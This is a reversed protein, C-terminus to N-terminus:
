GISIPSGLAPAIVECEGGLEREFVDARETHIPIVTAPKADSIFRLLDTGNAHGSVHSRLIGQGDNIGFHDLWNKLKIEDLVMDDSFPETAARVFVSGPPPLVDFLENMDFYGAHLIYRTPDAAIDYARLGERVHRLRPNLYGEDLAAFAAKMGQSRPGWDATIGALHKSSSYDGFSYTMSDTRKLYVRVSSNESLDSYGAPDAARLMEWLYAVKPSVALIRGTARAVNVITQFRTTDKWGFDIIALGRCGEIAARITNEVDQEDDGKTSVNGDRDLIRTGETIFVDPALGATRALLDTTLNSEGLSFRGHFRVDGSYFVTKGSPCEILYACAGPVSHDVPIAEVTFGGVSFPSHAEIVNIARPVDQDGTGIKPEGPFTSSKGCEGCERIGCECIESEFGGRGIDQAARLIAYTPQTCFVPIRPDVYSLDQCHDTHGHSLLIGDLRPGRASTYDDYSELESSFMRRASSPVGRGAVSDWAGGHILLDRRYIGPIAPLLGLALLDRLCSNTRPQLFEDFYMGSAGFSKGFDLMLASGNDELMIKNGGIEGVAGHCTIQLM